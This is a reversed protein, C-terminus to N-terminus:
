SHMATQTRRGGHRVTEHPSRDILSQPETNEIQADHARMASWLEAASAYLALDDSLSGSPAGRAILVGIDRLLRVQAQLGREGFTEIEGFGLDALEHSKAIRSRIYAIARRSEDTDTPWKVSVRRTEAIAKRLKLELAMLLCDKPSSFYSYFRRRTVGAAATIKRVTIKWRDEVAALKAVASLLFDLDGSPVSERSRPPDGLLQLRTVSITSYVVSNTAGTQLAILREVRCAERVVTPGAAYAEILMLRAAGPEGQWRRAIVGVSEAGSLLRQATSRYTHLFCDEKDAYHQYFSRTSVGAAQALERVTVAEYGSKVVLTAMADEIRSRQHHSVERASRGPGPKLKACTASSGRELRPQPM